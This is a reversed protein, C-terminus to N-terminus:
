KGKHLIGALEYYSAYLPTTWSARRSEYPRTTRMGLIAGSSASCYLCYIIGGPTRREQGVTQWSNGYKNVQNLSRDVLWNVKDMVIWWYEWIRVQKGRFTPHLCGLFADIEVFVHDAKRFTTPCTKTYLLSGKEQLTRLSTEREM